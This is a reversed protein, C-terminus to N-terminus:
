LFIDEHAVCHDYMCGPPFYILDDGSPCHRSMESDKEGRTEGHM